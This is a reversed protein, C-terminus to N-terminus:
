WFFSYIVDIIEGTRVDVLLVDDYYRVWRYPGYADPLRYEWPDLIWYDQGYFWPDIRYGPSWRHYRFAYGRPAYYRPARYLDRNRDRYEQWGYRRDSRWGRNWGRDNNGRGNDWRQGNDHWPRGDNWSRDPQRNRGNSGRRSDGLDSRAEPQNPAVPNRSEIRRNQWENRQQQLPPQPTM